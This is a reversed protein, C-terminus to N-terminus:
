VLWLWQLRTNQDSLDIYHHFVHRILEGDDDLILISAQDYMPEVLTVVSAMRVGLTLGLYEDPELSQDDYIIQNYCVVRVTESITTIANFLEYLSTRQQFDTGEMM